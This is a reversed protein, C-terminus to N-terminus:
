PLWLVRKPNKMEEALTTVCDFGIYSFFVLSAGSFIGHVGYPLFPSWNSTSAYKIGVFLLTVEFANGAFDVLLIIFLTFITLVLNFISSEKVGYILLFTLLIVITAATPDVTTFGIDLDTM